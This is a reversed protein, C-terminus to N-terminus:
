AQPTGMQSIMVFDMGRYAAQKYQEIGLKEYAELLFEINSRIVFDNFTYYATYGADKEHSFEDPPPYRQPWGGNPYQANVIFDVSNLVPDRYVPDLTTMYLNLLFRAAEVTVDDDFTCNGFNHYFEEWGWCKSQMGEYWAQVGEPDFDIFYDWGGAPHQGLILVNAVRKAYTLYESDGTIEYAKLLAKGVGVTGPDQVWIMSKRAPIEGWQEKFDESYMWLFGGQNSVTDMMFHTARKAAKLVDDKGPDAVLIHPVFSLLLPLVVVFHAIRLM